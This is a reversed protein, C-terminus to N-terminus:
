RGGSSLGGDGGSTTGSSPSSSSSSSGASGDGTGATVLPNFGDGPGDGRFHLVFSTVFDIPEGDEKRAPEFRWNKVAEMVADEFGIKKHTCEVVKIEGVKGDDLVKVDVKVTGTFRAALAAPPYAPATQTARIVIPPRVDTPTEAAEEPPASEAPPTDSAISALSGIALITVLVPFVLGPPIRRM